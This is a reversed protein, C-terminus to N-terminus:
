FPLNELFSDSVTDVGSENVATMRTKYNVGNKAAQKLWKSVSEFDSKPHANKETKWRSYDHIATEFREKGFESILSQYEDKSMFVNSTNGIKTKLNILCKNNVDKNNDQVNTDIPSSVDSDMGELCNKGYWSMYEQVKPDETNIYIRREIIQNSNKQYIMKIIILKRKKLDNIWRSITRSSLSYRKVFYENSGWCYGKQKTHSTLDGFLLKEGIPINRDALIFDPVIIFQIKEPQNKQEVLVMREKVVAILLM